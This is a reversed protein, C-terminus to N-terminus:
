GEQAIRVLHNDWSLNHRALLKLGDPDAAWIAGAGDTFAFTAEDRVAAGCIDARRLTALHAGQGDHIMAVGGVPSTIAIMGDTAAISGAYGKMAFADAAAPAHAALPGGGSAIGLLPVPDVPDGQWQMAFGVGGPLLALHRISNQSLDPGLRRVLVEHGEGDLIALNPQMRDLNLPTRDTPDTQIGGNAIVLNGDPLLRLEHPGIGLSDWEGLRCYGARVDWVGVRGASSEALVESTYLRTGDASFAGHGNFQRGEPPSLRHVVRGDRCDIVLGFTGPRRAFAVVEARYPHAAAAHGRDPLAVSFAIGAAADIGHLAHSGDALKAAAVWQPQGVAAWGRVPLVAAAALGKLLTRRNAM